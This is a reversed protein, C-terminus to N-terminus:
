LEEVKVRVPSLDAGLTYQFIHRTDHAFMAKKIRNHTETERYVLDSCAACLKSQQGRITVLKTPEVEQCVFCLKPDNTVDIVHKEACRRSVPQGIREQAVMYKITMRELTDTRM